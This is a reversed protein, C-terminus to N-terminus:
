DGTSSCPQPDARGVDTVIVIVWKRRTTHWFKQVRPMGRLICEDLAMMKEEVTPSSVGQLKRRVKSLEGDSKGNM